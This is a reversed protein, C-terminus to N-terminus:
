GVTIFEKLCFGLLKVDDKIYTVEYFSETSNDLNISVKAGVPIIALEKTKINAGERLRLANCNSITGSVKGLPKKTKVADPKVNVHPILDEEDEDGDQEKPQHDQQRILTEKDFEDIEEPTAQEPTAQEPTAQHLKLEEVKEELTEQVVEKTKSKTM